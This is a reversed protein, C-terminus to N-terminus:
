LAIPPAAFLSTSPRKLTSHHRAASRAHGGPHSRQCGLKEMIHRVHVKVTDESINLKAAILRNQNGGAIHRLVEIERDTLTEEGYHEALRVAIEPSIPKKGAHVERITAVMEQPNASKLLYARAGAKLARHIEVDGEFTTLIVIRAEPFEARIAMMADLGSMGPLRLDMLTVDPRHKRFLELAEVANCAVGALVLDTESNIVAAIGERVLPHDDVCLVRIRTPENM